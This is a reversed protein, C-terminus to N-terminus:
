RHRLLAEYLCVEPQLFKMSGKVFRGMWFEKWYHFKVVHGLFVLSLAPVLLLRMSGRTFLGPSPAFAVSCCM